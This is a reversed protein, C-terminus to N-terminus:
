SIAEAISLSQLWSCFLQVEERKRTGPWPVAFNSPREQLRYEFPSVLLNNDMHWKAYQELVITAGRGSSVIQLALLSSDALINREPTELDLSYLQSLKLWSSEVGMIQVVEAEALRQVTLNEGFSSLYDPHCVIMSSDNGLHIADEKVWNGYGYRIDLDVTDDEFRDAWITTSLQVVIDPYLDYFEFLRPSLVLAAYSLSARVNILQKKGSHFLGRTAQSMDLLSKRIPELYAKGVDTLAVGKPLRKFLKVGLQKELLGIHQSVAASTLNLEVAAASFSNSRAAAEFSRLWVLHPLWDM